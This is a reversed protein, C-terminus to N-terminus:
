ILGYRGMINAQYGLVSRGYRSRVVHFPIFSCLCEKELVWVHVIEFSLNVPLLMTWNQEFYRKLKREQQPQM